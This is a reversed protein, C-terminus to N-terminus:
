VQHEDADRANQREGLIRDHEQKLAQPASTLREPTHADVPEMWRESFESEKCMFVDGVRRRAHDYYGMALARVKVTREGPSPEPATPPIHRPPQQAERMKATPNPRGPQGGAQRKAM